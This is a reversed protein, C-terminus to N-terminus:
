KEKVGIYLLHNSAGIISPQTSISFLLDLWLKRREGELSNYIEDAGTGAPEVGALVLTRFGAKQHLPAIEDVTAVYGRFNGEQYALEADKGENIVSNVDNQREIYHPFDRMVDGWIGYRSVFASFIVGGKKLRKYAEKLAKKRDEKLILHYLPGMLLVADYDAAPIEKLERADGIHCTVKSGLGEETVRRRCIELQGPSLDVATVHYGRKALPITYAGSASGIELIKGRPPLYEDLYCWTVDREMQHRELRDYEQETTRDYFNQIDSIDEVM